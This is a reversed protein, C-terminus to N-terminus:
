CQFQFIIKRKLRDVVVNPPVVHDGHSEVPRQGERLEDVVLPLVKPLHEDMVDEGQHQNRETPNAIQMADPRQNQQNVVASINQELSRLEQLVRIQLLGAINDEAQECHRPDHRAESHVRADDVACRNLGRLDQRHVRDVVDEVRQQDHEQHEVQNPSIHDQLDDNLGDLGALHFPVDSRAGVIVDGVARLVALFWYRVAVARRLFLEVM